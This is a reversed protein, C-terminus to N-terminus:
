VTLEETGEYPCPLCSPRNDLCPNKTNLRSPLMPVSATWIAPLERRSRVPYANMGASYQSSIMTQAVNASSILVVKKTECSM